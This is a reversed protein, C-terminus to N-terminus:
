VILNLNLCDFKFKFLDTLFSVESDDVLELLLCYRSRYWEFSLAVSQIMRVVDAMSPRQDPQQAVCAFGVHLMAVGEGRPNSCSWM